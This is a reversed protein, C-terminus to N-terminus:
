EAVVFALAYHNETTISIHIESLGAKELIEKLEENIVVYPCGDEHNLTEIMRFDFSVGSARSLAKFVAEKSAFRTSLYEAPDRLTKAKEIEGKQFTRNIFVDGFTDILRRMENIDVMDTGIQM